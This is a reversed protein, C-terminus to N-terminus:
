ETLWLAVRNQLQQTFDQPTRIGRLFLDLNEDYVGRPMMTTILAMPMENLAVLGQMTNFILCEHQDIFTPHPLQAFANEYQRNLSYEFYERLIPTASSFISQRAYASLLNKVFEWAVDRDAGASIGINAWVNGRLRSGGYGISFPSILLRGENDVLPIYYHDFGFFVGPPTGLVEPPTCLDCLTLGGESHFFFMWDMPRHLYNIETHTAPRTFTTMPNTIRNGLRRPVIDREFIQQMAVMNSIFRPNTFDARQTDFDVFNSAIAELLISSEFAFPTITYDDFTRIFLNQNWSTPIGLSLHGFEDYSAMITLYLDMLEEVTIFSKQNFEDVIHSPLDPNIRVYEFGFSAPLTYLGGAIEFASLAQTFFDDRSIYPDQEILDYFNALFGREAMARINQGDFLIIDPMEGAMMLLSLREDHRDKHYWDDWQVLEMELIFTKGREAWDMRMEHAATRIADVNTGVVPGFRDMSGQSISCYSALITITHVAELTPEAGPPVRLGPSDQYENSDNNGPSENSTQNSRGCAALTFVIYFAFLLIIKRM